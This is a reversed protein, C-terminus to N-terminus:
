HKNENTLDSIYEKQNQMAESLLKRASPVRLRFTEAIGVKYAIRVESFAERRDLHIRFLSLIGEATISDSKELLIIFRANGNYILKANTKNFAETLYSAFMKIVEDGGKRGCQTNIDIINSIDATVFVTGDDLIKKDTKKLYKDFSARNSFGTLHDTYFAYGIIDNMRGLLIAGGCCVIMLFVFAIVTYLTVNISESVSVSSLVSINSAGIYQNYEDNTATSLDYLATLEDVLATIDEAIEAEIADYNKNHLQTCTMSSSACEKNECAGTCREFTDIVYRCYASDITAHEKNENHDRWGYILEDYTVTQDGGSIPNGDGDTLNREYVDDLIYEYTISTNGSERMKELYADIVKLIDKTMEEEAANAINNNDIRTTYDAILISKDKTIQYKYIRAFLDSVKVQRIYSFEDALDNFSLKTEASRYYPTAAERQYLTTLTNDINDRILEVMEIYDYNDEYLKNLNNNVTEVNIYKQSYDSFYIDLTADLVERAFDAGEDNTAAFSIIYTTPEYVYEKGEDLLAEKQAVKDADPLPTITIRSILNDVSYTGYLGMQSIVKSLVSSSKIENVDLKSGLPTLGQEASADNYHIVEAAVYQNSSSLSFYIGITAVICIILILPLFKKIYHLIRFEEM